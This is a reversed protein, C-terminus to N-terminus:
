MGQIFMKHREVSLHYKLEDEGKSTLSYRTRNPSSNIKEIYGMGRLTHLWLQLSNNDLPSQQQHHHHGFSETDVVDITGCNRKLEAMIQLAIGFNRSHKVKCIFKRIM